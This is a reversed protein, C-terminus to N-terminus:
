RPLANVFGVRDGDAGLLHGSRKAFGTAIWRNRIRTGPYGEVLLAEIADLEELREVWAHVYLNAPGIISVCERVIRPYRRLRAGIEPLRAQPAQLWLSVLYEYGFAHQNFDLRFSAFGEALIRRLARATGSVSHDTAAAIASVSARGDASLEHIIQREFRTPRRGSTPEGRAAEVPAVGGAIEGRAAHHLRHLASRQPRALADIRWDGPYAFVARVPNTLTRVVGDVRGIRRDVLHELDGWSPATISLLLDRPGTTREITWISPEDALAEVVADRAGAECDVEVYATSGYPPFYFWDPASGPQCTMWALGSARLARWRRSLTSADTGLVPALASWPLRPHIQLAELLQRDLLSLDSEHM